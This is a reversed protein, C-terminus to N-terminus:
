ISTGKEVVPAFSVGLGEGEGIEREAEQEEDDELKQETVVGEVERQKLRLDSENEAVPLPKFLPLKDYQALNEINGPTLEGKIEKLVEAPINEFLGEHDSVYKVADNPNIRTHLRDVLRTVGLLHRNMETVMFPSPQLVPRLKVNVGPAPLRHDKIFVIDGLQFPHEKRKKNTQFYTALRAQEIKKQMQKTMLDLQARLENAQKRLSADLILPMSAKRLSLGLNSQESSEAGFVADYPRVQTSPHVSNNMFVASLWAIDTWAYSSKTLLIGKLVKQFLYNFTEIQGRAQSNFVTTAALKVGIAGMFQLFKSHRFTSGNDTYLIKTRFGTLQFFTKFCEIAPGSASSKMGFVALQKTLPCVITLVDTYRLPNKPMGSILDAYIVEFPYEPAKSTGQFYNRERSGKVVKCNWCGKVFLASKQTLEPFYYKGKMQLTLGDRGLFHGSQLHEFALVKGELTPPIWVKWLGDVKKVLLGKEVRTEGEDLIGSEIEAPLEARQAKAIQEVSLLDKLLDLPHISENLVDLAANSTDRKTNRTNVVCIQELQGTKLDSNTGKEFKCKSECIVECELDIVGVLERMEDHSSLQNELEPKRSIRGYLEDISVKAPKKMDFSRSSFDAINEASGVAYLLVNPYNQQLTVSWRHVKHVTESITKSFLFYATQSDLIALVAPSGVHMDRTTHLNTLLGMAEKEFIPRKILAAPIAKSIYAIVELFPKPGTKRQLKKKVEEFLQKQSLERWDNAVADYSTFQSFPKINKVFLSYWIIKNNGDVHRGLFLPPIKDSGLGGSLHKIGNNEKQLEWSDVLIIDRQMYLGALRLNKITKDKERRILLAHDPLEPKLLQYSQNQLSALYEEVSKPYNELGLLAIQSLLAKIMAPTDFQNQGSFQNLFEIEVRLDRLYNGFPDFQSFPKAKADTKDVQVIEPEGFDIQALVGGIINSSSDSFLIKVANPDPLHVYLPKTTLFMKCKEFAKKHDETPNYDRKTSTLEYLKTLEQAAEAPMVRRLTGALAAFAMLSKRDRPFAAKRINNIRDPDACLKGQSVIWGLIKAEKVAVKLKECNVKWGHFALRNLVRDFIQFHHEVSSEHSGKWGTVINIDDLFLVIYPDLFNCPAGTRPDTYLTRTIHSNFMVPGITWGNLCALIEYNGFVTAITSKHLDRDDIKLHYFGQRLDIQSVLYVDKGMKALIKDTSPLIVVPPDALCDNERTLAVVMRAPKSPDKRDVMFVPAGQNSNVPGRALGAAVMDELISKLQVRKHEPLPFVRPYAPGPRAYPLRIKGLTEATSGIDWFGKSVTQPFREVFLERVKDHYQTDIEKWPIADAVTEKEPAKVRFGLDANDDAAELCDAGVVGLDNQAGAVQPPEIRSGPEEDETSLENIQDKDITKNKNKERARQSEEGDLLIDLPVMEEEDDLPTVSCALMGDSLFVPKNRMNKVCVETRIAGNVERLKSVTDLVFIGEKELFQKSNINKILGVENELEDEYGELRIIKEENELLVIQDINSMITSKDPFDKVPLYYVKDKNSSSPLTVVLRGQNLWKLGMKQGVMFDRGLIMEGDGQEVIIKHKYSEPVGPFSLTVWYAGVVRVTHNTHSTLKLPETKKLHNLNKVVKKLTKEGICSVVAGSDHFCSLPKGEIEINLYFKNVVNPDNQYSVSELMLPFPHLKKSSNKDRKHPSTSNPICNTDPNKVHKGVKGIAIKGVERDVVREKNTGLLSLEM